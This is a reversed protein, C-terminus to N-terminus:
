EYWLGLAQRNRICRWAETVYCPACISVTHMCSLHQRRRLAFPSRFSQTSGDQLCSPLRQTCAVVSVCMPWANRVALRQAVHCTCHNAAGFGQEM